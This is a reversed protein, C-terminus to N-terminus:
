RVVPAIGLRERADKSCGFLEVSQEDTIDEFFLRMWTCSVACAFVMRGDYAAASMGTFGIDNYRLLTWRGKQEVRVPNTRTIVEDVPDGARVREFHYDRWAPHCERSMAQYVMVGRPSWVNHWWCVVLLPTGGLLGFAVFLFAQKVWLM